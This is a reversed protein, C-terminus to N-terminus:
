IIQMEGSGGKMVISMEFPLEEPLIGVLRGLWAFVLWVPSEELRCNDPDFAFEVPPFITAGEGERKSRDEDCDDM